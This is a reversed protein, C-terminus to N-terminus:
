ISNLLHPGGAAYYPDTGEPKEPDSFAAAKREVEAYHSEITDSHGSNFGDYAGFLKAALRQARRKAETVKDTNMLAM